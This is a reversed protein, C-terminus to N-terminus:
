ESPRVELFRKLVEGEQEDPLKGVWSEVVSGTRDAIILTPTARVQVDELGAQRIDDVAVGLGNLYKQSDDVSQPLVAILRVRGNKAKEEALRRYFPASDTCFRCGTSLVMLLTRDSKGWDVGPMSLKTGSKVRASEGATPQLSTPLLYRSVLVVGLLIAVIVIAINALLEVRKYWISM